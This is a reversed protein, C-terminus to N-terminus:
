TDTGAGLSEGESRLERGRCDTAVAEVAAERILHEVSRGGDGSLDFRRAPDFASLAAVMRRRFSDTPGM